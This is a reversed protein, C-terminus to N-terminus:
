WLQDVFVCGCCTGVPMRSGSAPLWVEAQVNPPVCITLAFTGNNSFVEWSSSIVGRATTLSASVSALSGDMPPKPKILVRDFGVAAPHPQIGALGQYVFVENSTFM